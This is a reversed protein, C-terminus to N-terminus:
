AARDGFVEVWDILIDKTGGGSQSTSTCAPGLGVTPLTATVNAVWVGDLFFQAVSSDAVIRFKHWNTDAAIGTDASTASSASMSRVNFNANLASDYYWELCDTTSNVAGLAGICNTTQVLKARWTIEFNGALLFSLGSQYFRYSVNNNARIQFQGGVCSSPISQAGTGSVSWLGVNYPDWLMGIFDDFYYARKLDSAAEYRRLPM